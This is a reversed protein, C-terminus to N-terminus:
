NLRSPHGLQLAAAWLDWARAANTDPSRSSSASPSVHSPAPGLFCALDGTRGIVRPQESWIGGGLHTGWGMTLLRARLVCGVMRWGRRFGLLQCLHSKSCGPKASGWFTCLQECVGWALVPIQAWLFRGQKSWPTKCSPSVISPSIDKFGRPLDSYLQSEFIGASFFELSISVADMGSGM